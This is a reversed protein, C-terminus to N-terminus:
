SKKQLPRTEIDLKSIVLKSGREFGSTKQLPRKEAAV